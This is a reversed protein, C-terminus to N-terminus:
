PMYRAWFSVPISPTLAPSATPHGAASTAPAAAAGGSDGSGGTPCTEPGLVTLGQQIQQQLLRLQQLAVQQQLVQTQRLESDKLAIELHLAMQGLVKTQELGTKRLSIRLQLAETKQQPSMLPLQQAQMALQTQQQQLQQLTMLHIQQQQERAVARAQQLTQLQTQQALLREEKLRIEAAITNEATQALIRLFTKTQDLLSKKKTLFVQKVNREQDVLKQFILQTERPVLNTHPLFRTLLTPTLWNSEASLHTKLQELPMHDITSATAKAETPNPVVGASSEGTQGAKSLTMTILLRQSIAM